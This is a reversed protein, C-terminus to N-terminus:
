FLFGIDAEQLHTEEKQGESKKSSEIFSCVAHQLFPSSVKAFYKFSPFSIPPKAMSPFPFPLFVFPHPPPPPSTYHLHVVRVKLAKQSWSLPPRLPLNFM